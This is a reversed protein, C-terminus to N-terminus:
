IYLTSSVLQINPSFGWTVIERELPDIDLSDIYSEDDDFWLVSFNLRM